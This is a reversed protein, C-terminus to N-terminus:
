HEKQFYIVFAILSFCLVLAFFGGYIKRPDEKALKEDLDCFYRKKM